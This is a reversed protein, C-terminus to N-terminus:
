VKELGAKECDCGLYERSGTGDAHSVGDINELALRPIVIVYAYSSVELMAEVLVLTPRAGGEGLLVPNLFDDERFLYAPLLSRLVQLLGVSVM